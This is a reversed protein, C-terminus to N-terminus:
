FQLQQAAALNQYNSIGVVLAYSRPIRVAQSQGPISAPAGDKELRLDRQQKTAPPQQKPAPPQQASLPLIMLAAFCLSAVGSVLDGRSGIAADDGSGSLVRCADNSACFPNSTRWISSM